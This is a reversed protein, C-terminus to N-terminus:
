SIYGTEGRDVATPVEMSYEFVDSGATAGRAGSSGGEARQGGESGGGAVQEGSVRQGEVVPPDFRYIYERGSDNALKKSQALGCLLSM